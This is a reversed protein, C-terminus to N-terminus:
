TITPHDPRPELSPADAMNQQAISTARARAAAEAEVQMQLMKVMLRENTDVLNVSQAARLLCRVDDIERQLRALLCLESAIQEQLEALERAASAVRTRATPGPTGNFAGDIKLNSSM